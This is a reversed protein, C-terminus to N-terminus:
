LGLSPLASSYKVADAAEGTKLAQAALLLTELALLSPARYSRALLLRCAEPRLM